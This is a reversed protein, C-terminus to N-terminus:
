PKEQRRTVFPLPADGAPGFIQPNQDRQRIRRSLRLVEGAVTENLQRATPISDPVGNEFVKAMTNLLVYTYLGHQQQDYWGSVETSQSATLVLSNESALVPNEVRITLPSIGRVLSGRDALGSFCADMVVTISKAPLLAINNYLQKVPYGTLRIAQPDADSPVLYATGSGADPAGHGSYFIFIDSPTDPRLYNYLQGKHDDRTGFIRQLTSYSANREFIINDEQFGFTEILFRRMAEADREAFDVAPVETRAYRANGIVVAVADKNVLGTRPAAITPAEPVVPAAATAAADAAEIRTRELEAEREAVVASVASDLASARAQVAREWSAMAVRYQVVDSEYKAVARQYAGLRTRKILWSSVLASGVAAGATCATNAAIAVNEGPAVYEGNVVSGLPSEGVLITKGCPSATGVFAGAGIMMGTILPAAGGPKRPAVPATPQTPMPFRAEVDRRIAVRDPGVQAHLANIVISLSAFISLARHMM